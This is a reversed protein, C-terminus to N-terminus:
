RMMFVDSFEIINIPTFESAGQRYCIQKFKMTKYVVM